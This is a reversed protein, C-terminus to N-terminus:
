EGRGAERGGEKEGERGEKRQLVLSGCVIHQQDTLAHRPRGLCGSVGSGQRWALPEM